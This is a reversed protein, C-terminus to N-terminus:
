LVDRPAHCSWAQPLRDDPMFCLSMIPFFLTGLVRSAHYTDFLNVVYLNFDQQLWM